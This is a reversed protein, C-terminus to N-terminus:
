SVATKHHSSCFLTLFPALICRRVILTPLRKIRQRPTGWPWPRQATFLSHLSTWWVACLQTLNVSALLTLVPLFAFLCVFLFIGCSSNLNLTFVCHPEGTCHINYQCVQKIKVNWQVECICVFLIMSIIWLTTLYLIDGVNTTFMLCAKFSILWPLILHKIDKIVKKNGCKLLLATFLVEEFMGFLFVCGSCCRSNSASVSRGSKWTQDEIAIVKNPELFSCSFDRSGLVMLDDTGSNSDM